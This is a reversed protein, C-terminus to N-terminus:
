GTIKNYKFVFIGVAHHMDVDPDKFTTGGTMKCWYIYYDTSAILNKIQDQQDLLDKVKDRINKAALYTDATCNFTITEEELNEEFTGSSPLSYVIYPDIVKHPAQLPYIKSDSVTAGLLNDLSTDGALYNIVDLEIM